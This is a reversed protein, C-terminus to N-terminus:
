VIEQWVVADLQEQRIPQNDCVAGKLHRYGDRGLCRYYDITRQPRENIVGADRSPYQLFLQRLALFLGGMLPSLM